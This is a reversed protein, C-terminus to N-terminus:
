SISINVFDCSSVPTSRLYRSFYKGWALVAGRGVEGVEVLVLAVMLAAVAVTGDDAGECGDADVSVAGEWDSGMPSSM